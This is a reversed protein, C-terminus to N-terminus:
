GGFGPIRLVTSGIFELISVSLIIFILGIIAATLWEKADSTKKVDGQSVTLSFASALIILLAVGGSIGIGFNILKSILNRPDQSICGIATWIGDNGYCSKCSTYAESGVTLNAECISYEGGTSNSRMDSTCGTDGSACVRFKSKCEITSGAGPIVSTPVSFLIDHEGLQTPTITANISSGPSYSQNHLNGEPGSVVLRPDSVSEIGCQDSGLLPNVEGTITFPQNVIVNDGDLVFNLFNCSDISQELASCEDTDELMVNRDFIASVRRCVPMESRCINDNDNDLEVDLNVGSSDWGDGDKVEIVGSYCGSAANYQDLSFDRWTFPSTNISVKLEKGSPGAGDGNDMCFNPSAEQDGMRQTLPGGCVQINYFQTSGEERSPNVRRAENTGLSTGEITIACSGFQSDNNDLAWVLHPAFLTGIFLFFSATLIKILKV